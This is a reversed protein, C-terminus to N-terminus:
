RQRRFARFVAAAIQVDQVAVGTLDAVTIERDNQRGPADGAIITGLEAISSKEIMGARLAQSIEGRLRCQSLSDAVVLDARQLITADLEQKEPTDSGVATVHTGPRIDDKSLLPETAPTTTVILNARAAVEGPELTTEIEFGLAEMEKKYTDLGEASRGAVVVSDCDLVGGLLELQRRAQVGTGIIGIAAVHSPALHKAAVAGAAATRLDTLKGEDLLVAAPEGTDQRFLLMMGDGSSLGLKPNHFFGSAIKVVYFEDGRTYGYKIHVEGPPDDLLLEGVPPVVCRGQSYAIFGEEMAAILDVEAVLEEIESWSLIIPKSM